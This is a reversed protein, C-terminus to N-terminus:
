RTSQTQTMKARFRQVRQQFEANGRDLEIARMYAQEAAFFQYRGEEAVGLHYMAPAHRPDLAVAQRLALAARDFKQERLYYLGLQLHADFSRPRLDVAQQLAAHQEDNAGTVQAAEASILALTYPDVGNRQGEELVQKAEVFQKRPALVQLVLQRYPQLEGPTLTIVQRLIGEARALDNGRIYAGAARLLFSAKMGPVTQTEATNEYIAAEDATRGLAAYFTSLGATAETYGAQVAQL